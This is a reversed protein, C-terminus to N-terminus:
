HKSTLTSYTKPDTLVCNEILRFFLLGRSGSTRRNFRFVFENLYTDLNKKEVRGHHTGYYWRKLLSAVRHVRPLLAEHDPDQDEWFYPKRMPKHQYGNEKVADYSTLGDTVIVSGKEINNQIFKLLEKSSRNAIREMRIRGTKKGDIEAAVAILDKNNVGGLYVEDVEVDGSLPERKPRVMAIRLKHLLLWATRYSGLGLAQQLGLASIGTKQNTVWWIGNFWTLIPLSTDQFITGAFLSQQYGCEVCEKLPRDSRNWFVGGSCRPCRVGHPWRLKALYDRCFQENPFQTQFESFTKPYPLM